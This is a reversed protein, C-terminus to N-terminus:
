ERSPVELGQKQNAYEQEDSDTRIQICNLPVILATGDKVKARALAVVDM